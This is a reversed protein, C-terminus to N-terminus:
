GRWCDGQVVGLSTMSSKIEQTPRMKEKTWAPAILEDWRSAVACVRQVAIDPRLHRLFLIVRDRYAELELPVFEGRQYIEALPTGRLVHLNHLKVNHVPLANLRKATAIIEDDTENPLGFILHIGMDIEPCDHQLREIAHLTTASNHGRQLFQLQSDNFSQVGLEVMLYRTESIEQLLPMIRQPLCDPRTGLVVGVVGESALATTFRQRLQEVRAFTNTYAQFYILFREAHYRKAIIERNYRIQETLPLDQQLHYAASGWEDCFICGSHPQDSSEGQRQQRNPCSEAVSVSVKYIKGGFRQKFYDSIPYWPSNESM